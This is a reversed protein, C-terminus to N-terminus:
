RSVLHLRSQLESTHEESRARGIGGIRRWQQRWFLHIGAFNLQRQLLKVHKAAHKVDRRMGIVFVCIQHRKPRVTRKVVSSIKRNRAPVATLIQESGFQALPEANNSCLFQEVRSADIMGLLKERSCGIESKRFRSFLCQAEPIMVLNKSVDHPDDSSKTRIYDHRAESGLIFLCVAM